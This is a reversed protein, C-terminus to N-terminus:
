GRVSERISRSRDTAASAQIVPLRPRGLIRRLTSIDRPADVAFGATLVGHDANLDERPAVYLATWPGNGPEGRIVVRAGPRPRGVLAIEHGHQTSFTHPAPDSRPLPGGMIGLAVLTPDHLASAWHGGPVLGDRETRRDACDGVAYVTGPAFGAAAGDARGVRDVAVAGRATLALASGLWATNPLAGVAAIVVDAELRRGDALYVADPHVSSVKARLHLDVGSEAFWPAILAGVELGLPGALPTAAAELVTVDCGQAAALGSLESGIWGAGICVVRSGPTLRHRLAAADAATHLVLAGEWTAPLHAHAGTAVVTVDVELTRHDSLSITVEGEGPGPDIARAPGALEMHDVLAHVDSGIEASLWAPETREFLEKSLPPRDYPALGEAGLMTIEGRFGADRLSAATRLGALGAGVVGVRRLPAARPPGDDGSSSM